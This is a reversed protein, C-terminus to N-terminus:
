FFALLLCLLAVLSPVVLSSASVFLYGALAGFPSPPSWNSHFNAYLGKVGNQLVLTSYFRIANKLGVPITATTATVTGADTNVQAGSLTFVFKDTLVFVGGPTTFNRWHIHVAQILEGTNAFNWGMTCTITPNTQTDAINYSCQTVSCSALTTTNTTSGTIDRETVVNCATNSPLLVLSGVDPSVPLGGSGTAVQLRGALAGMPSPPSWNSHFNAYLGYIGAQAVLTSYYRIAAKFDASMAVATVSTEGNDTDLGGGLNFVFKDAVVAPGTPPNFAKWHIHVAQIREGTGAFNWGLRCTLIPNVRTDTLDYVCAGVTCFATASTNTTSSTIAVETAVNCNGVLTISGIDPSTQGACLAIVVLLLFATM